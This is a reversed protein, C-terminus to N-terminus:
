YVGLWSDDSFHDANEIFIVHKYTQKWNNKSMSYNMKINDKYGM